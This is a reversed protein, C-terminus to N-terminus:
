GLCWGTGAQALDLRRGLDSEDREAAGLREDIGLPDDRAQAGLAILYGGSVVARVNDDYIGAAEEVRGLLLAEVGDALGHGLIAADDDCATEADLLLGDALSMRAHERDGARMLVFGDHLGHVFGHRRQVIGVEIEHRGFARTSESRM